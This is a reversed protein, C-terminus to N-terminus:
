EPINGDKELRGIDILFKAYKEMDEQEKGSTLSYIGYYLNRSVNYDSYYGIPYSYLGNMAIGSFIQSYFPAALVNSFGEGPAVDEYNCEVAARDKFVKAAYPCKFPEEPGDIIMLHLLRRNALSVKKKEDETAEEGLIATPAMRKICNGAKLCGFPIRLGFPCEGDKYISM